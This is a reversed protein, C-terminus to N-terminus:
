TCSIERQQLRVADADRAEGEQGVFSPGADVAARAEHRKADLMRGSNQRRCSAATGSAATAEFLRKNPLDMGLGAKADGVDPPASPPTSLPVILVDQRDHPLSSAIRQWGLRIAVTLAAESSPVSPRWRCSATRSIRIVMLLLGAVLQPWRQQKKGYMFLVFGAGSPFLSLVILM